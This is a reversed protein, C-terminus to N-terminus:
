RGPPTSEESRSQDHQRIMWVVADLAEDCPYGSDRALQAIHKRIVDGTFFVGDSKGLLELAKLAATPNWREEEMCAEALMKLRQLVYERTVLVQDRRQVLLAMLRRHIEPKRLNEHGISAASGQSYGSRIAAQTANLDVLYEQCFKEQKPTLNAPTIEGRSPVEPKETQSADM